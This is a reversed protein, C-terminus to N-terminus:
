HFRSRSIKFKRGADSTGEEAVVALCNTDSSQEIRPLVGHEGGFHGVAAEYVRHIQLIGINLDLSKMSERDTLSVRRDLSPRLPRGSKSDNADSADDLGDAASFRVNGHKKASPSAPEAM